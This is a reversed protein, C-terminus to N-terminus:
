SPSDLRHSFKIMLAVSNLDQAWQFAPSLVMMKRKQNALDLIYDQKGRVNSVFIRLSQFIDSDEPYYDNILFELSNFFNKNVLHQLCTHSFEFGEDM